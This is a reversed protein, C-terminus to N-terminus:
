SRSTPKWNGISAARCEHFTYYNGHMIPHPPTQYAVMRPIRTWSWSYPAVAFVLFALVKNARIRM